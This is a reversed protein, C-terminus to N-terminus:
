SLLIMFWGEGFLIIQENTEVQTVQLQVFIM